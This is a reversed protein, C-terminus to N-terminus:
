IPNDTKENRQWYSVVNMIAKAARDISPFVPISADLLKNEEEIQKDFLLAPPIV